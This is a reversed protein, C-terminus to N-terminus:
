QRASAGVGAAYAPVEFVKVIQRSATDIINLTGPPKAGEVVDGYEGATNRGSVFLWRGDDSVASGHPEYLGGGSIQDLLEWNSADIVAVTNALRQPFYVVSGDVSYVPHWPQGGLAFRTQLIPSRPDTIDFVLIEGSLQGGTVMTNGDPSIAFQVFTHTEGPVDLLELGGDSPEVTAIRNESLSATYVVDGNPNAVMAHPRAFFVDVENIVMSDREIMGIRTPPSVAAMSRGVYLFDSIPDLSLMGPTEFEAQGVLNNDRDFKLVRWDAILSVYWHSGDPEVAVHHPKCTANFGLATLDVTAILQQTEIDIVSIAAGDQSAVYVRGFGAQAHAPLVSLLLCCLVSLGRLLNKVSSRMPSGTIAAGITLLPLPRRSRLLTLLTALLIAPILSTGAAAMSM